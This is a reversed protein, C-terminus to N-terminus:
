EVTGNAEATEYGGIFQFISNRNALVKNQSARHRPIM